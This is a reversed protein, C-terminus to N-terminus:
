CATLTNGLRNEIILPLLAGMPLGRQVVRRRNEVPM